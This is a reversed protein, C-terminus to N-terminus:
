CKQVRPAWIIRVGVARTGDRAIECDSVRDRTAVRLQVTEGFYCERHYCIDIHRITNNDFHDMTWHNLVMALYRVSNVHRNFDIDCYRFTYQQASANDPLAPLRPTKEVPCPRESLPFTDREFETLDAMCRRRVDIATWVTRIHGITVGDSGTLAFCRDCFRRNYSEIWTTLSYQENIAPYRQMEVSIKSLVWAVGHSALTAYGINLANAHETAVEIVRQVLLTLPMTSQAGAEGATLYFSHTYEAKKEM